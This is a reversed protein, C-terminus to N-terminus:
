PTPPAAADHGRRRAVRVAAVVLLAGVGLLVLPAALAGPFWEDVLQPVVRLAGLAGVALLVLDGLLMALAIVAAVTALALVLGWSKEMPGQVAFLSGVAGLVRAARAPPLVGAWGLALWAVSLLWVALGATVVDDHIRFALALTTGALTGYLAVHLLVTREGWWLAAALLAAGGLVVLAVDEDVLDLVDATLVGLTGGFAVVALTWLVSRLREGTPGLRAPVAVGAGLLAATVVGLLALRAATGLDDWFQGVVLVAAALILVGGLYGLAEVALSAGRAPVSRRPAPVTQAAEAAVIREAQEDSILGQAVWRDLMVRLAPSAEGTIVDTDHAM